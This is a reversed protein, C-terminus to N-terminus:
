RNRKICAYSELKRLNRAVSAKLNSLYFFIIINFVRTGKGEDDCQNEKLKVGLHDLSRSSRSGQEVFKSSYRSKADNFKIGDWLKSYM